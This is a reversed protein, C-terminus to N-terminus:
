KYELINILIKKLKRMICHKIKNFGTQKIPPGFDNESPIGM